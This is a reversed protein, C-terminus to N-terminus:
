IQIPMPRSSLSPYKPMSTACAIYCGMGDIDPMRVDTIVLYVPHAALIELGANGGNAVLASDGRHEIFRQLTRRVIDEDDIILINM